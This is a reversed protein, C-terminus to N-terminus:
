NQRNIGGPPSERFIVVFPRLKRDPIIYKLVRLYEDILVDPGRAMMAENAGFLAFPTAYDGYIIDVEYLEPRSPRLPLMVLTKLFWRTGLKEFLYTEIFRPNFYKSMYTAIATVTVKTGTPDTNMGKISLFLGRSPDSRLKWEKRAALYDERNQVKVTDKVALDKGAFYRLQFEPALTSGIAELNFGEYGLMINRILIEKVASEEPTRTEYQGTNDALEVQVKRRIERAEPSETALTACGSLSFGKILILGVLPWGRYLHRAIAYRMIQKM